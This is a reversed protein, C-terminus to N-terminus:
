QQKLNYVTSAERLFVVVGIQKEPHADPVIRQVRVEFIDGYGLDLFKAITANETSPIYGLKKDEYYIAVATCDYRNDEERVLRLLTGVKLHEYAMCGDWYTFGAIYFNSFHREITRQGMNM